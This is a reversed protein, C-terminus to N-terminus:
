DCTTCKAYKAYVNFFLLFFLALVFSVLSILIFFHHENHIYVVFVGFVNLHQYCYYFYINCWCLYCIYVLIYQFSLLYFGFSSLTSVLFTSSIALFRLSCYLQILALACISCNYTIRFFRLFFLLKKGMCMDFTRLNCAVYVGSLASLM